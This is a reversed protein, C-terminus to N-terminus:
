FLRIKKGNNVYDDTLLKSNAVILSYFLIATCIVISSLCIRMQRLSLAYPIGHICIMFLRALLFLNLKM